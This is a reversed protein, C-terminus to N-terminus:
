YNYVSSASRLQPALFPIITLNRFCNCLFFASRLTVTVELSVYCFWLLSGCITIYRTYSLGCCTLKRSM